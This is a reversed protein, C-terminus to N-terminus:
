GLKRRIDDLVMEASVEGVLTRLMPRLADLLIPLDGPELEEPTLNLARKCFMKVANKANHKGLWTKLLTAVQEHLPQPPM